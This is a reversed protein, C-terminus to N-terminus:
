VREGVSTGFPYHSPVSPGSEPETVAMRLVRKVADPASDQGSMAQWVVQGLEPGNSLRRPSDGESSPSQTVVAVMTRGANSGSTPAYALAASASQPVSLVTVEGDTVSLDEAHGGETASNDMTVARVARRLTLDQDQVEEYVAVNLIAGDCDWKQFFLSELSNFHCQVAEGSAEVLPIEWADGKIGLSVPEVSAYDQKGHWTEVAKSAGLPLLGALM